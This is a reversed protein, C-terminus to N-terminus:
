STGRDNTELPTSEAAEDRLLRYMRDIVAPPVEGAQSVLDLTTLGLVRYLPLLSSTSLTLASLHKQITLEDGRALPGTLARVTGQAALNDLTSRVLPLFLDLVQDHPLGAELFLKRASAELTVLYNSAVCAAAHYLARDGDDLLFPRAGLARAVGFGFEAASPEQATIAVAIGEFSREAATAAGTFTQLPHFALTLAGVERCPALVQVSSVGSSHIVIPAAPVPARCSGGSTGSPPIQALAQALDGAVQSLADDPVTVLIMRPALSVLEAISSAPALRLAASARIRGELSHSVFGVLPAGRAKLAVALSTGLRGAGIVAFSVGKLALPSCAGEKVRPEVMIACRGNWNELLYWVHSTATISRSTGVGAM